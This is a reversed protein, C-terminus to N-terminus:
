IEKKRKKKRRKKKLLNIMPIGISKTTLKKGYCMRRCHDLLKPFNLRKKFKKKVKCLTGNKNRGQKKRVEIKKKREKLKWIIIPQEKSVM